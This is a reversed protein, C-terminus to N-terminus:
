AVPIPGSLEEFAFEGEITYGISTGTSADLLESIDFVLAKNSM